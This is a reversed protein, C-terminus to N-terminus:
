KAAKSASESGHVANKVENEGFYSRMSDPNQSKAQKPNEPGIFDNWKNVCNDAILEM